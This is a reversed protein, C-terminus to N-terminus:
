RIETKGLSKGETGVMQQFRKLIARLTDPDVPKVFHLDVGAEASHIRDDEQGYGSVTRTM